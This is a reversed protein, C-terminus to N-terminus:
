FDLKLLGAKKNAKKLDIFLADYLENKHLLISAKLKLLQQKRFSYSRTNYENYFNRLLQLDEKM